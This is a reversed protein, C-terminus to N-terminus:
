EWIGANKWADIVNSYYEQQQERGLDEVISEWESEVNQLTEEVGTEGSVFRSIEIDLANIYDQSGPWYPVPYGQELTAQVASTYQEASEMSGFAVSEEPADRLPNPQTFAAPDSLQSTRFPDEGCGPDSVMHTSFEPLTFTQAFRYAALKQEDSSGSPVGLVRGVPMASAARGDEWGPVPAGGWKGATAESAAAKKPVDTWQVVMAANGGTFSDRLEPYGYSATDDPAYQITEQWSELARRGAETNIQPNMEEDFYKGGLGGFRTLFWGYAFGRKGYTAVGHEIDDTEETFYRAAENFEAWTEPVEIDHQEFLDRRYVLMLVDGDIPLAYTNGGWQTYMQRFPKLMDDFQPDWGEIEMMDDLPQLHGNAAFTGLYQPYFSVLDFAGSNSTFETMLKSFLNTFGFGNIEGLEVGTEEQIADSFWSFPNTNHGEDIALTISTGDVTADPDDPISMQGGGGGGGGGGVCGSLGTTAAISAASMGHVFRRRSIEDTQKRTDSMDNM